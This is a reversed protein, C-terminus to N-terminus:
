GKVNLIKLVKSTKKKRRQNLIQYVTHDFGHLNCFLSINGSYNQVILKWLGQRDEHTILGHKTSKNSLESLAFEISDRFNKHKEQDGNRMFYELQSRDINTVRCFESVSGFKQVIRNKLNEM